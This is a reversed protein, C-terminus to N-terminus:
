HYQESDFSVDYFIASMKKNIKVLTCFIKCFKIPMSLLIKTSHLNQYDQLWVKDPHALRLAPSKCADFESNTDTISEVSSLWLVEFPRWHASEL